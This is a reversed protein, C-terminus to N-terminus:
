DLWAFIRRLRIRSITQQRLGHRRAISRQTEGADLAHRIARVAEPTLPSGTREGRAMRGKVTADRLNEQITGPWVHAPNCCRRNEISGVPYRVDCSHCAQQGPPFPGNIDQWAFRHSPMATVQDIRFSGYGKVLCGLWPWCEDPGRVDVKRWFRESPSRRPHPQAIGACRRSCFFGKGRKIQSLPAMFPAGCRQCNRPISKRDAM